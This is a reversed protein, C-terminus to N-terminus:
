GLTSDFLIAKFCHRHSGDGEHLISDSEFGSAVSGNNTHYAFSMRANWQIEVRLLTLTSCFSVRFIPGM